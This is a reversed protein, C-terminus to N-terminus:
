PLSLGDNIEHLRQMARKSSFPPERPPDYVEGRTGNVILDIAYCTDDIVARYGTIRQFHSMGADDLTFAQFDHGDISATSRSHANPPPTLCNSIAKADHSAGLRWHAATIDNSSPLALTILREGPADDAIQWSGTDFYGSQPATIRALSADARLRVPYPALTFDTTEENAPPSLTERPAHTCASLSIAGGFVAMIATAIFIRKM